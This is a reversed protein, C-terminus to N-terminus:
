ILPHHPPLTAERGTSRRAARLAIEESGRRLFPFPERFGMAIGELNVLYRWLALKKAALAIPGKLHFRRLDALGRHRGLSAALVLPKPRFAQLSTGELLARANAGAVRGEQTALQATPPLPRGSVPDKALAVDGCAFIEIVGVSRLHQDVRIRGRNDARLGSAAGVPNARVGGTWVTLDSPLREGDELVVSDRLVERVPSPARISIDMGELTKGAYRVLDTAEEPLISPAAQLLVMSPSVRPHRARLYEAIEASVEVGTLGGGVIVIRLPSGRQARGALERIRRRLRKASDVYQLTYSHRRAGPIDFYEPESGLAVVLADYPLSRGDVSVERREPFIRQVEGKVIGIRREDVLREVPLTLDSPNASGGVVRYMETVLQHYGNKDVLTIEGDWGGRAAQRVAQIGAYGAGLVVLRGV